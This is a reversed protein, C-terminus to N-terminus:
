TGSTTTVAAIVVFLGFVLGLVMLGVAVWGIVVGAVAMGRGDLQGGSADIEQKAQNGVVIAAIGVLQCVVLGVIGLVLATTAKSSSQRQVAYGPQPYGAQPYAAPAGYGAPPPPAQPPQAAVPAMPPAAPPPAPVPAAPPPPEPAAGPPSAYPDGMSPPLPANAEGPVEGPPPLESSM